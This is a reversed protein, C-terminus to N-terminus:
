GTPRTENLALGRAKIREERLGSRRVKGAEDRLPASAFEFSRPLKYPTLRSKLHERLQDEGVGGPADVIAHVVAGMDPDPLGIVASSRVAPHEELASEIEAPFVNAGGVVIMDSRRDAIYLYGDQDTWGMDGVSVWGGDLMRREAGVYHFTERAGGATRMYIEGIEGPGVDGGNEGIIRLETGPIPKGVSGRHKLWEPGTIVTFGASETSGYLELIREAGLLDIWREKVWAPCHASTHFLQTLSSVNYRSITEPPLKIIRQMMTPVLFIWDARWRDILRLCEEPEFRAMLVVHVGFLMAYATFAFPAGHFLRGPIVQVGNRVMGPMIAVDPDCVAAQAPVIIKPRGTSGGSVSARMRPATVAPLPADSFAELGEGVGGAFLSGSSPAADESLGIVIRPRGIELIRSLEAPAIRPSLPQPVAGIKLAAFAAVMFDACNALAIAVTDGQGAGLAQLRRAFRNARAEFARRSLTGAEDTIFPREPDADALWTIAAGMPMVFM